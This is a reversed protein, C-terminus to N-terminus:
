AIVGNTRTSPIDKARSAIFVNLIPAALQNDSNGGCDLKQPAQESHSRADPLLTEQLTQFVKLKCERIDRFATPLEQPYRRRLLKLEYEGFRLSRSRCSRKGFRQTRGQGRRARSAANTQGSTAVNGVPPRCYRHDRASGSGCKTRVGSILCFGRCSTNTGILLVAVPLKPKGAAQFPCCWRHRTLGTPMAATFGGDM